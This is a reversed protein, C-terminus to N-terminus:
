SVWSPAVFDYKLRKVHRPAVPATLRVPIAGVPAGEDSILQCVRSNFLKTIPGVAERIPTLALSFRGQLQAVPLREGPAPDGHLIEAGLRQDARDAPSRATDADAIMPTDDFGHRM